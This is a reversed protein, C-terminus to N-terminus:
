GDDRNNTGHSGTDAHRQPHLVLASRCGFCDRVRGANLADLAVNSQAVTEGGATHILIFCGGGIGSNHGDVVGLMLATAVAADIANGGDRLVQAGYQAALKQPAAVAGATVGPSVSSRAAGEQAGQTRACGVLAVLLAPLMVRLSRRM